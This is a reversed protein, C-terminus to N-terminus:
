TAAPTLRLPQICASLHKVTVDITSHIEEDDCKVEFSELDISAKKDDITVFLQQQDESLSVMTSGYMDSLTEQLCERVHKKNVQIPTDTNGPCDGSETKLIVTVVADAYVDNVPSSEWELVLMRNELFINIAGFVRIGPKQKDGVQELEGAVQSLNLVLSRPAATFPIGLHQTVTSRALSTYNQLDEPAMMHLKFNRRVLIGSLINGESPKEAALQGVVKATKEGRFRLEVSQTNKPTYVLLKCEPDDEFKRILHSRLRNMETSEGHVLIVHPPRLERIFDTTQNCDTHASFSIYDVSCKLPLKQGGMTTIEEPESLITKALTGEVCYGAIIVGNRKDTCWCEFLERSLGSQMMGPSALVVCPGIDDFDDITKLSAIHKFKFPNSVASQKRIKDNMADIYTQYVSMCKKALSSAYYIPFEHLEPHSSWYEDLILLLEQARGLAFVPILCRGGRTVIDHVLRTFRNERQERPEHVHVGYTAETVLVDPRLNPVEAAMLHRDEQRSFDGTYLIKVGAIEIMFMAAGLVHGAHYCWFKIGNVEIEQHFNITEIRSMSGTLEAETYLMEEASVNSVRICDSLLWKYIAKTAHTMFCRGKFNTKNLFWPLAGCHDLHFHSVLLLDLEEPDINDIFPLANRGSLGPHIGFDLLIKKGKFELYICSRGVEQGAGLPRIILKDSDDSIAEKRKNSIM